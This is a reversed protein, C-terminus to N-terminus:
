DDGSLPIGVTLGTVRLSGLSNYIRGETAFGTNAAAPDLLTGSFTLVGGNAIGSPRSLSITSLNAGSNNLLVLYGNGGGDDIATVVGQLRDTITPITYTVTM